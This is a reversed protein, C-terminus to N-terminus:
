YNKRVTYYFNNTAILLNIIESRNVDIAINVIIM